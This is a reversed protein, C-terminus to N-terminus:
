SLLRNLIKERQRTWREQWTIVPKWSDERTTREMEIEMGHQFAALFRRKTEDEDRNVCIQGTTAVSKLQDRRMIYGFIVVM